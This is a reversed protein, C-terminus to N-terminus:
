ARGSASISAGNGWYGPLASSAWTVVCDGASLQALVPHTLIAQTTEMPVGLDTPRIMETQSIPIGGALQALYERNTGLIGKRGPRTSATIIKLNIM